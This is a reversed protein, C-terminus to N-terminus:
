RMGAMGRARKSGGRRAIKKAAKRVREMADNSRKKRETTTCVEVCQQRTDFTGNETKQCSKARDKITATSPDYPKVCEWLWDSKDKKDKKDKKFLDDDNNKRSRKAGKQSLFQRFEAPTIVRSRKSGGILPSYQM